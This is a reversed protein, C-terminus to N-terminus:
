QKVIYCSSIYTYDYLLFKQSLPFFCKNLFFKLSSTPSTIKFQHKQVTTSTFVRSLGKYKLSILCTLWLPLWDQINMPLVSVSASVGICQGGSTFFQSMSFSGSEPFSQLCSSFPIVPSSITPHCLQSLPCSDSCAGPTPSPRLPRVHQLGRPQLSDSMVSHSFQPSTISMYNKVLCLAHPHPM